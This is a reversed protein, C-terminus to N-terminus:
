NGSQSLLRGKGLARRNELQVGPIPLGTLRQGALLPM